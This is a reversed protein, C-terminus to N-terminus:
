LIVLKEFKEVRRDTLTSRVTLKYVYVGKGIAQGFDDLGDWVIDRSLFGDTTVSQNITKIVKGSVTFIQVQVDLPEFPRNHNFWFETYNVFPNPYNLVNDLELEDDEVVVFQLDATSSNNYVDWARFTLTHLGPELDRIRRRARGSTFDDVDSEYFENMIIPQTEDGDLYALIDHGIGGATNIGNEDELLALIFPSDNTIGGNVFSEDNMFLRILPGQNDPPASENLGGVMLDLNTGAQDEFLGTRNAYFNLRGNDVPIATDRPMIFEFEFAGNAVTAQGRFLIPGLAVFDLILLENNSGTVGDNGLTQLNLNKDYMTVAVTGNYSFIPQGNPTTVVGNVKVRDLARLQPLEQGVPIDNIATIRVDQRPVALTQAPDGLFFIVRRLEGLNVDDTTKTLRVVEGLPPVQGTDDFDFLIETLERNFNVALSVFIERTTAIAAVAGGNPNWIFDEGGTPRLPNDFKTFECTVTILLPLREENDLEQALQRPLIIESSLNDEGGHGLYSVVLAGAEIADSIVENVRPYRDGGASAEQQFADSHIKVVNVSPREESINDGLVDQEGQLATFEFNEDVDDSILVVNNRWRGFSEQNDYNIIKDVVTRALEPTDALIRGVAIDLLDANTVLGENPDMLGYFDDSMFSFALSFSEEAQFTPVINNNNPLRDLYDVSADGFLCIFKLRNEDSSANEYVYRALNRIAGIDQKGSGFEEYIEDLTVVKVNLGRFDRNHQALREAEPRLLDGTIMLYDVDQFNGNADEFITGKINQNAIQTNGNERRPTFYDLPTIAVYNRLSGLATRFSIQSGNDANSVARVATPNTVDWIETYGAANGFIYEGIGSQTATENNQFRIQNGTGLLNRVAEISIYDLYGISSPNGANNYTLTVAVEESSIPTNVELDDGMALTINTIAGINLTGILTGNIGVDFTTNSESIAAGFVRVQAPESGVINPFNFEFTQENEFSFQEGFWRRGVLVLNQEDEEHFQYDNFTTITATTTGAPDIMPAVRLGNTGGATIYYYSREAYPNVNTNLEEHFNRTGEGYFLVFDNGNFSGDEEGVVRIAIEQLDFLNNESNRLPLPAGGNGYVKITRPDVDTDMGLNNLFNRTLQHVGTEEVYFRFFEGEALVSNVIPLQSKSNAQNRSSNLLVDFSVVRQLQGNARVFPSVELLAYTENRAQGIKIKYVVENPIANLEIANLMENSIPEYKINSLQGTLGQQGRSIKWRESYMWGSTADNSFHPVQDLNSLDIRAQKTIESVSEPWDLIIQKQQAFGFVSSLCLFIPLFYKM